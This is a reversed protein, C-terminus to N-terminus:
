TPPCRPDFVENLAEFDKFVSLLMETRVDWLGFARVEMVGPLNLLVETLSIRASTKNGGKRRDWTCEDTAMCDNGGRHRNHWHYTQLRRAESAPTGLMCVTLPATRPGRREFPLAEQNPRTRGSKDQKHKKPIELYEPSKRM